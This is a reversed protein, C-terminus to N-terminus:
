TGAEEANATLAKEIKRQKHAYYLNRLFSPARPLLYRWADLTAARWRGGLTTYDQRLLERLSAEGTWWQISVPASTFYSETARVRYWRDLGLWGRAWLTYTATKELAAVSDVWETVSQDRVYPADINIPLSSM